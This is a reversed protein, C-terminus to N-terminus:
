DGDWVYAFNNKLLYISNTNLFDKEVMDIIRQSNSGDIIITAHKFYKLLHTIENKNNKRFIVCNYHRLSDMNIIDELILFRKEGIQIELNMRKNVSLINVFEVDEQRVYRTLDPLVAYKLTPHNISDFTTWLIAKGQKINALAISSRVNYIRYGKYNNLFLRIAVSYSSLFFLCIMMMVLMRKNGYNFALILFLLILSLTISQVADWIIGHFVSMPLQAIFRLGDVSFLIIPDLLYGLIVSLIDIPIAALLIGLYMIITSPLAIFLNAFLFYLPFQGFYYLAFPLTFLQAAISVYCYEVPLKLWRNSPCWLDKLIPFLLLIGLIAAYSLQFGVDFLYQPSLLLIFLASALLTNVAIQRRKSIISVIFFSIMIGARMIPPSMGTLIVYGWIVIFILVCRILKGYKIRDLIKLLYSLLLFVLSVHLGSVSLVHITGTNRFADMTSVDVESRYGFILAIAIQFAEENHLYQKFRAMLKKRLELSKDILFNGKGEAIKKYGTVNLICQYWMQKNTLYSRYDFEYPNLPASTDTIKNQFVIVDGYGLVQDFLSDRLLMVLLRGNVPKSTNNSDVAHIMRLPFRITKEKFVPEDDVVGILQSANSNAFHSPDTTPKNISILWMGLVFMLIYFGISFLQKRFNSCIKFQSVILLIFCCVIVCPLYAIHILDYWKGFVIGIALALVPKFLPVKSFSLQLIDTKVM